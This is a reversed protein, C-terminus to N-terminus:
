YLKVRNRALCLYNFRKDSTHRLMSVVVRSELCRPSLKLSHCSSRCPPLLCTHLQLKKGFEGGFLHMAELVRQALVFSWCGFSSGVSHKISVLELALSELPSIKMQGATDSSIQCDPCVSLPLYQTKEVSEDPIHKSSIHALSQLPIIIM